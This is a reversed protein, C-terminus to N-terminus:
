VDDISVKGGPNRSTSVFVLYNPFLNQLEQKITLIRQTPIKLDPLCIIPDGQEFLALIETRGQKYGHPGVNWSSLTPDMRTFTQSGTGSLHLLWEQQTTRPLFGKWAEKDALLKLNSNQRTIALSGDAGLLKDAHTALM